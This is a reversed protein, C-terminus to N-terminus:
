GSKREAQPKPKPFLSVAKDFALSVLYAAALCGLSIAIAETTGFSGLIPKTSKIDAIGLPILFMMCMIVWFRLPKRGVYGVPSGDLWGLARESRDLVLFAFLSFAISLGMFSPSVDSKYPLVALSLALSVALFVILLRTTRESWRGDTDLSKGVLLGALMVPLYFLIAPYGGLYHHSFDPLLGASALVLYSVPPVIAIAAMVRDSFFRVFFASPVFLVASMMLEDPGLFEGSTFSSLFFWIVGLQFARLLVGEAYVPIAQGERKRHFYFLSMGSAFLFMPFVFDGIHLSGPANHTLWDPLGSGLMGIITFFFMLAIAGGRLVDIGKVRMFM